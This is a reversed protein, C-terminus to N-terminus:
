IGLSAFPAGERGSVESDAKRYEAGYVLYNRHYHRLDTLEAASLAGRAVLAAVLLSAATVSAADAIAIFRRVRLAYQSTRAPHLEM